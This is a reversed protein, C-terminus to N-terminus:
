SCPELSFDELFFFFLQIFMVTTHADTFILEPHSAFICHWVEVSSNYLLNICHNMVYSFFQLYRVCSIYVFTQVSLGTFILLAEDSQYNQRHFMVATIYLLNEYSNNM